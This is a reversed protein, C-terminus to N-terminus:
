EDEDSQPPNVEVEAQEPLDFSSEWWKDFLMQAKEPSTAEGEWQGSINWDVTYTKKKAM